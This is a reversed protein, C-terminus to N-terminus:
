LAPQKCRKSWYIPWENVWVLVEQTAISRHWSPIGANSVVLNVQGFADASRRKLKLNHDKLNTATSL